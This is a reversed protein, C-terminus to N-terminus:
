DGHILRKKSKEVCSDTGFKKPQQPPQGGREADSQQKECNQVTMM